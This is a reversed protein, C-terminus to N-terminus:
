TLGALESAQQHSNIFVEWKANAGIENDERNVLRLLRLQLTAGTAATNSDAEWKSLGTVTSGTGAVLDINLGVSTAALTASDSDEQIEFIVDPSDCVFAIRAQSAPRHKQELNSPNPAFSQISGILNNGAGATALKITPLTGPQFKGFGPATVEATNASGAITVPDGVFMANTDAAPIFYPNGGGNYPTGDRYKIPRLGMANDNNAM